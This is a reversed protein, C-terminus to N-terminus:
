RGDRAEATLRWGVRVLDALVRYSVFPQGHHVNAYFQYWRVLADYETRLDEPLRERVTAFQQTSPLPNKGPPVRASMAFGGGLRVVSWGMGRQGRSWDGAVVEPGEMRAAGGEAVLAM